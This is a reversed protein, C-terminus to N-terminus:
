DARLPRESGPPLAMSIPPEIVRNNEERARDRTTEKAQLSQHALRMPFDVIRSSAPGLEPSTLAYGPALRNADHGVYILVSLTIYKASGM